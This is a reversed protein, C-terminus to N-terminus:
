RRPNEAEIQNKAHRGLPEIEIDLQGVKLAIGRVRYDMGGNKWWAQSEIHLGSVFDGWIRPSGPWTQERRREVPRALSLGGFDLPFGVSGCRLGRARLVIENNEFRVDLDISLIVGIGGARYRGALSVGSEDFRVFPDALQPPALEDILPYIERRMAIWRNLDDQYLHYVFPGTSHLLNETMAQEAAVLNNRVLQREEVPIVPPEYWSPTRLFAYAGILLLGGLAASGIVLIRKWRQTLRMDGANDRMKLPSYLRM